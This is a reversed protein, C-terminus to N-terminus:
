WASFNAGPTSCNQPSGKRGAVQQHAGGGWCTTTDPDLFKPRKFQKIQCGVGSPILLFPGQIPSELRLIGEESDSAHTVKLLPLSQPPRPPRPPLSTPTSPTGSNQDAPILV